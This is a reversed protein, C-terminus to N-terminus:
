TKQGSALLEEEPSGVEELTVSEAESTTQVEADMTSKKKMLTITFTKLPESPYPERRASDTGKQSTELEKIKNLIEQIYNVTRELLHARTLNKTDPVWKRLLNFGTTNKKRYEENKRRQYEKKDTLLKPPNLKFKTFMEPHLKELRVRSNKMDLLVTCNKLAALSAFDAPHGSKYRTSV